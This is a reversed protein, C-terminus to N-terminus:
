KPAPPTSSKDAGPAAAGSAAKQIESFRIQHYRQSAVEIAKAWSAGHALARHQYLSAILSHVVANKPELKEAQQLAALGVDVVAVREADVLEPKQLRSWELQAIDTLAKVKAGPDTELEVRKRHWELAKDFNGAQRNINALKELVDRSNPNKALVQNWYVLAKDYQGSDLWITTLLSIIKQDDNGEQELYKTLHFAAKEAYAKNQPSDTGPQFLKHYALGDNHHGIALDPSRELAADYLTIAERYRGELYLKNGKQIERRSKLEDCGSLAALLAVAIAVIAVPRGETRSRIPRNMKLRAVIDLATKQLLPNRRPQSARYVVCLDGLGMVWSVCGPLGDRTALQMCRELDAEHRSKM